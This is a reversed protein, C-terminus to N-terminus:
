LEKYEEWNKSIWLYAESDRMSDNLADIYEQKFEKELLEKCRKVRVEKMLHMMYAVNKGNLDDELEHGLYANFQEAIDNFNDGYISKKHAILKKDVM